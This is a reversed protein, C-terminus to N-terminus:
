VGANAFIARVEALNTELQATENAIETELTILLVEADAVTEVGHNTKLSTTLTQLSGEAQAKQQQAQAIKQEYQALEEQPSM